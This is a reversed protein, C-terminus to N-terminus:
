KRKFKLTCREIEDELAKQDAERMIREWTLAAKQWWWLKQWEEQKQKILAQQGAKEREGKEKLERQQKERNAKRKEMKVREESSLVGNDELDRIDDPYDQLVTRVLQGENASLFWYKTLNKNKNEFDEIAFSVATAVGSASKSHTTLDDILDSNKIFHAVESRRCFSVVDAELLRQTLTSGHFCKADLSNNSSSLQEKCQEFRADYEKSKELETQENAAQQSAVSFFLAIALFKTFKNM